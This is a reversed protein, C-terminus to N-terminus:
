PAFELDYLDLDRVMVADGDKASIFRHWEEDSIGPRGIVCMAQGDALRTVHTRIWEERGCRGCTLLHHQYQDNHFQHGFLWCLIHKM